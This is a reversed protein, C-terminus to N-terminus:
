VDGANPPRLINYVIMNGNSDNVGAIRARHEHGSKHSTNEGIVIEFPSAM